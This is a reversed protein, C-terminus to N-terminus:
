RGSRARMVAAKRKWTQYVTAWRGRIIERETDGIAPWAEDDCGACFADGCGCGRFTYRRDNSM